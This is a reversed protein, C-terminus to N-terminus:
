LTTLGLYEAVCDIFEKHWNYCTSESFHLAMAAGNINHTQKILVMDIMKLRETGNLLTETYEFANRVAQEQYPLLRSKHPTKLHIGYERICEKVYNRGIYKNRGKGM